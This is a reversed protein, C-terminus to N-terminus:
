RGDRGLPSAPETDDNSRALEFASDALPVLEAAVAAPDTTQPAHGSDVLVLRSGAILKHAAEGCKPAVIPDHRGWVLVTPATIQGAQARLDHSPLTFSHWMASLAQAGVPRRTLAIASARARHDADTRARMYALSFMPYIGRLFTPRSMLSCFLRGALQLPREFGSSDIIMLGKVLNPRTIALRASVNGGISNGVLVAGGPCLADLVEAVMRTLEVEGPSEPWGPSEGHGPWDIAISRFRDPLLDRLGDFDHSDHGGSALFVVPDGDGRSDYAVQGLSTSITPM